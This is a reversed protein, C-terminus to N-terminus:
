PTVTFTGKMARDSSCQYAYSGAEMFTFIFSDGPQLEGADFKRSGDPLADAQVVRPAESGNTWAVQMGPQVEVSPCDQDTITVSIAPPTVVPTEFTKSGCASLTFVLIIMFRSLYKKRISM